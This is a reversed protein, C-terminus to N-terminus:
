PTQSTKQKCSVDNDRECLNLVGYPELFTCFTLECMRGFEDSYNAFGYVYLRRSRNQIAEFAESSIPGIRIPVTITQGPGLPGRSIVGVPPPRRLRKPLPRETPPTVITELTVDLAPGAGTNKFRLVTGIPVNPRLEIKDMRDFIIWPRQSIELAKRTLMISEQTAKWQFFAIIVNFGTAVAIVCTALMVFTTGFNRQSQQKHTEAKPAHPVGEDAIQQSEGLADPEKQQRQETNM